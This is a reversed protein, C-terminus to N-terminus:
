FPVGPSMYTFWAMLMRPNPMDQSWRSEQLFEVLALAAKLREGHRVLYVYYGGTINRLQANVWNRDFGGQREMPAYIGDKLRSSQERDITIRAVKSAYEAASRGARAGTVSADSLGFGWYPYKAGVTRSNYADGAAFLGPLQTTCKTDISSIGSGGGHFGTLGGMGYGGMGLGPMQYIGRKSPDFGVRELMFRTQGQDVERQIDGIEEETAADINWLMPARGEHVAAGITYRNVKRGEADIYRDVYHSGGGSWYWGGAVPPKIQKSRTDVREGIDKDGYYEPGAYRYSGTGMMFEKGSIEAGARYAMAEGIGGSTCIVTAKAKFVYFDGTRTHFGVAGIVMGDQKLLDTVMIRDMVRIGSKLVVSRM